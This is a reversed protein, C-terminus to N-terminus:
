PTRTLAQYIRDACGFEGKDVVAPPGHLQWGQEILQTVRVNFGYLTRDKDLDNTVVCYRIQPPNTNTPTM